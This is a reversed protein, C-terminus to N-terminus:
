NLTFQPVFNYDILRYIHSMNATDPVHLKGQYVSSQRSNLLRLLDTVIKDKEVVSM